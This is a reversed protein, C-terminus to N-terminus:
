HQMLLEMEHSSLSIQLDPTFCAEKLFTEHKM